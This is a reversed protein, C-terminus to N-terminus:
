KLPIFPGKDFPGGIRVVSIDVPMQLQKSLSRRLGRLGAEGAQIKGTNIAHQMTRAKASGPNPTGFRQRILQNFKKSSVRIAIDIDSGTKATGAARSGHVAINNGLHGAKQRVTRSMAAFTNADLGQPIIKATASARRPTRVSTRPPARSPTSRLAPKVGGFGAVVAFGQMASTAGDAQAAYAKEIDLIYPFVRPLSERTLRTPYILRGTRITMRKERYGRARGDFDILDRSWFLIVTGHGTVNYTIQYGNKEDRTSREIRSFPMLSVWRDGDRGISVSTVSRTRQAKKATEQGSHLVIPEAEILGPESIPESRPGYTIGFLCSISQQTVESAHDKLLDHFGRQYRLEFSLKARATSALEIGGGALWGADVPSVVDRMNTIAGGRSRQADILVSGYVGAMGYVSGGTVSLEGRMVMSLDVYDLALSGDEPLGDYASRHVFFLELQPVLAIWSGFRAPSFAGGFSYGPSYAPATSESSQFRTAVLGGKLALRQNPQHSLASDSADSTMGYGLLLSFAEQRDDNSLPTRYGRQYRAELFLEGWSFSALEFGVAALFGADVPSAADVRHTVRDVTRQVRLLVSGYGGAMAYFTRNGITLEGRLVLPLEISDMAYSENGLNKVSLSTDRRVFLLELQPVLAFNAFPAWRTLGFSGGLSFGPTSTLETRSNTAGAKFRLFSDAAAKNTPCLLALVCGFAICFYSVRLFMTSLAGDRLFAGRHRAIVFLALDQLHPGESSDDVHGTHRSCTAAKLRGLERNRRTKNVPRDRKKM